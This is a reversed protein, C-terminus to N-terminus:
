SVVLNKFGMSWDPFQRRGVTITLLVNLDHHRDDAWITDYLELVANEDGELAQMFSGDKFLLLGTIGLRVNKERFKALMEFLEGESFDRNAKSAYVLQFM